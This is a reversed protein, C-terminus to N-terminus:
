DTNMTTFELTVTGATTGSSEGDPLIAKECGAMVAAGLVVVAVKNMARCKIGCFRFSWRRM